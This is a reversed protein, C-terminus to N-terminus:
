GCAAEQVGWQVTLRRATEMTDMKSPRFLTTKWADCIEYETETFSKTTMCGSAFLMILLAAYKWPM